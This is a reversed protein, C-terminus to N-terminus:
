TIQLFNFDTTEVKSKNLPAPTTYAQSLEGVFLALDALSYSDPYPRHQLYSAPTFGIKNQKCWTQQKELIANTDVDVRAYQKTRTLWKELDVSETYVENMARLCAENGVQHYINLLRIAVQFAINKRNNM